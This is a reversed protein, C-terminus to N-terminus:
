RRRITVAGKRNQQPFKESVLTWLYVGDPVSGGNWNPHVPNMRYVEGGSRNYVIMTFDAPNIDNNWQILWSENSNDDNPTFVEPIFIPKNDPNIRITDYVTEGLCGYATPTIEFIALAPDYGEFGNDNLVAGVNLFHQTGFGIPPVSDSPPTFVVNGIGTVFWNFSTQDVTSAISFNIPDGSSITPATINTIVTPRPLITIITDVSDRCFQSTIFVMEITDEQGLNTFTFQESVSAEVGNLRIVFFDAGSGTVTLSNGECISDNDSLLMLANAPNPFVIIRRTTDDNCAGSTTYTVDFTGSQSASLNITGTQPDVVLRTVDSTDQLNVWTYTGGPNTSSPTVSGDSICFERQGQPYAFFPNTPTQIELTDIFKEGCVGNVEYRIGYFGPVSAYVAVVGNARDEWVLGSPAFFVGALTTDYQIYLLSDSECVVSDFIISSNNYALIEINAVNTTPCNGGISDLVLTVTYSGIQSAGLDIVGTTTDVALNMSSRLFHYPPAPLVSPSIHNTDTECFINQPYEFNPQTSSTVVVTFTDRQPCPGGTTYEVFHSGPTSAALSILGTNPDLDLSDNVTAGLEVFTGGGDGLILPVPDRDSQCFTDPAYVFSPDELELIWFNQFLSDKCMPGDVHRTLRYPGGAPLVDTNISNGGVIAGPFPIYSISTVSFSSVTPLTVPTITDILHPGSGQCLTTDVLNFFTPPAALIHVSDVELVNNCGSSAVSYNVAYSGPGTAQLDILGSQPDITGSPSMTLTGGTTGSVFVASPNSENECYPDGPYNVVATPAGTITVHREMTDQCVGAQVYYFITFPGGVQSNPVDIYGTNGGYFQIAGGICNFTGGLTVMGTAAISDTNSCITNQINFFPDPAQRVNFSDQTLQVCGGTVLYEVRYGGVPTLNVDITGAVSDTFVLGTGGVQHFYGGPPLFGITQPGTLSYGRCYVSDYDFTAAVLSDVQISVSKPIECAGPGPTYTITYSGAPAALDFEGTSTNLFSSAPFCSFTGGPGALFPPQVTITNPGQCFQNSGYSLVQTNMTDVQINFTISDRCQGGTVGTRYKVINPGATGSHLILQGTTSNGLIGLGTEDFFLGPDGTNSPLPPNSGNLCYPPAPTYSVNANVDITISVINSFNGPLGNDCDEDDDLKVQYTGCQLSPPVTFIVTDIVAGSNGLYFVDGLGNSTDLPHFSYVTGSSHVWIISDCNNVTAPDDYAHAGIFRITQGPQYYAQSPTVQAIVPAQAKAIGSFMLPLCLIWWILRKPSGLFM